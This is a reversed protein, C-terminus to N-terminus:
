SIYSIAKSLYLFFALFSDLIEKFQIRNLITQM